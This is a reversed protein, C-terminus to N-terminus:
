EHCAVAPLCVTSLLCVYVCVCVCVCVCVYSKAVHQTAAASVEAGAGSTTDSAALTFDLMRRIIGRLKRQLLHKCVRAVMEVQVLEVVHPLTVAKALSDLHRVNIGADHLLRTFTSSDCPMLELADLRRGFAPIVEELLHQSALGVEIENNTKDGPNGIVRSYADASLPKPLSQVLEPRLLHTDIEGSGLELNPLDPPCIRALNMLYYRGDRCKHGQVQASLAVTASRTEMAVLTGSNGGEGAGTADSGKAEDGGDAGSQASGSTSARRRSKPDAAQQWEVGHPRLHLVAAARRLMSQLTPDKQIFPKSPDTRGHVLTREEDMPPICVVNM